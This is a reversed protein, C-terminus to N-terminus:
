GWSGCSGAICLPPRPTLLTVHVRELCSGGRPTLTCLACGLARRVRTRQLPAERVRGPRLVGGGRHAHRHVSHAARGPAEAARLRASRIPSPALALVHYHAADVLGALRERARSLLPRVPQACRAFVVRSCAASGSSVALPWQPHRCTMVSVANGVKPLQEHSGLGRSPIRRGEEALMLCHCPHTPDAPTRALPHRWARGGRVMEEDGDM